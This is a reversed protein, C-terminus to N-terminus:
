LSIDTGNANSAMQASNKPLRRSMRPHNLRTAAIPIATSIATATM